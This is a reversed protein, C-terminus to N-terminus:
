WYRETNEHGFWFYFFPCYDCDYRLHRFYRPKFYLIKTPGIGIPNHPPYLRMSTECLGGRGILIIMGLDCLFFFPSFIVINVVYYFLLHRFKFMPTTNKPDLVEHALM